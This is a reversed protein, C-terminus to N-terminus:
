AFMMSAGVGQIGRALNLMLPSGALGCLASAATFVALGVLFVRRRGIRDGVTGATLLSAAVPLPYADTVWQLAELSPGLARGTYPLAVNVVTIDLLLMFTAISVAVLTWWKAM